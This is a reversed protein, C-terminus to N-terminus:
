WTKTSIQAPDPPQSVIQRDTYSEGGDVIETKRSSAAQQQQQKQQATTFQSRTELAFIGIDNYLDM